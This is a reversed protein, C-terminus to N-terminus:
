PFRVLQPAVERREALRGAAMPELVGLETVIAEFSALRVVELRESGIAAAAARDFLPAPLAKDASAVLLARVDLNTAEKVLADTGATNIMSESGFASAGMVMLDVGFLSDVVLDEDVVEVAIGADALDSAFLRGSGDPGSGCTVRFRKDRAAQELLRQVSSSTGHALLSGGDPVFAAGMTALIGVSTRLREAVSRVEAIVTEPGRELTLYVANALTLLPASTSRQAVISGVVVEIAEPFAEPAYAAIREVFVALEAAVLAGDDAEGGQPAATLADLRRRAPWDAWATM